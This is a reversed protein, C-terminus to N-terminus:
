RSLTEPFLLAAPARESMQAPWLSMMAQAPSPAVFNATVCSFAISAGVCAALRRRQVAAPEPESAIRRLLSTESDETWLRVADEGATALARELDNM